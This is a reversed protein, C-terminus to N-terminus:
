KKQITYKVQAKELAYIGAYSRLWVIAGDDSILKGVQEFEFRPTMYASKFQIPKEQEVASDTERSVFILLERFADQTASRLKLLSADDLQALSALTFSGPLQYLYRGTWQAPGAGNVIVLGAAAHITKEDTKQVRLYPTARWDAGDAKELTEIDLDKAAMRFLNVPDVPLKGKLREVDGKTVSEIMSINAAVGIPGLLIGLGAGGGGFNQSYVITKEADLHQTVYDTRLIQESKALAYAKSSVPQPRPKQYAPPTACGSLVGIAIAVFAILIRLTGGRTSEFQQQHLSGGVAPTVVRCGKQRGRAM